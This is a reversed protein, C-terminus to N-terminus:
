VAQKGESERPKLLDGFGKVGKRALSKLLEDAFEPDATARAVIAAREASKLERHAMEADVITGDLYYRHGEIRKIVEPDSTRLEGFPMGPDGTPEFRVNKWEEPIVDNGVVQKKKSYVVIGLGARRSRFLREGPKLGPVPSGLVQDITLDSVGKDARDAATVDGRGHKAMLAM